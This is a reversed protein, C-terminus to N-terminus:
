SGMSCVAFVRILSLPHGPQDSDVSPAFDNQQNQWPTASIITSLKRLTLQALVLCLNQIAKSLQLYDTQYTHQLSNYSFTLQMITLTMQRTIDGVSTPPSMNNKPASGKPMQTLTPTVSEQKWSIEHVPPQIKVLNAHIYCQSMIFLQNPKPSKSRIKLTVAPSLTGFKLWFFTQGCTIEHVM